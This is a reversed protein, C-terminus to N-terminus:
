AGKEGGPLVNEGRDVAARLSAEHWIGERLMPAVEERAKSAAVKQAIERRVREAILNNRSDRLQDVFAGIEDESFWLRETANGRSNCVEIEIHLGNTSDDVILTEITRTAKSGPNQTVVLTKAEGILRWFFNGM